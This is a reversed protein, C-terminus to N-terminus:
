MRELMEAFDQAEEGGAGSHLCVYADAQDNPESYLSELYLGEIVSSINNIEHVFDAEDLGFGVEEYLTRLEEINKLSLAANEYSTIVKTVANYSKALASSKEFDAYINPDELQQKLSEAEQKLSEVDFATALM